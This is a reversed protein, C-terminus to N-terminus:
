ENILLIEEFQKDILQQRHEKIYAIASDRTFFSGTMSVQDGTDLWVITWLPDMLLQHYHNMLGFTSDHSRGALRIYWLRTKM